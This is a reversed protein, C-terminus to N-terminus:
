LVFMFVYFEFICIYISKINLVHNILLGSMKYQKTEFNCNVKNRKKITMKQECTNQQNM